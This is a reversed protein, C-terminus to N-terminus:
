AELAAAALTAAALAATEARLIRAGLRAGRAGALHAQEVEHPTFGGEPGILLTIRPPSPQLATQLSTAARPDLFFLSPPEQALLQPLKVPGALEPLCVRGCQEVAERTIRAYRELRKSWREAGADVVTRETTLFTIRAAGLETLKQLVWELKEGKLAAVAVHLTGPLEV